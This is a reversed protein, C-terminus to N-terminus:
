ARHRRRRVRRPASGVARVPASRRGRPLDSALPCSECRALTRCHSKAAAVILAHFENFLAPDSPLHAELFARAEEYGASARLLGHRVLLRRTYADAVFVPRGAATAPESAVVGSAFM